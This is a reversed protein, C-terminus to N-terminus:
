PRQDPKPRTEGTRRACHRNANTNSRDPSGLDDDLMGMLFMYLEQNTRHSQEGSRRNQRGPLPMVGKVNSWFLDFGLRQVIKIQVISCYRPGSELYAMTVLLTQVATLAITRFGISYPSVDARPNSVASSLERNQLAVDNLIWYANAVWRGPAHPCLSLTSVGINEDVTRVLCLRGCLQRRGESRHRSELMDIRVFLRLVEAHGGRARGTLCRIKPQRGRRAVGEFVSVGSLEFPLHRHATLV